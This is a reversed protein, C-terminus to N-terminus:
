IKEILLIIRHDIQSFSSEIKKDQHNFKLIKKLNTELKKWPEM